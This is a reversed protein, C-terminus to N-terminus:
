TLPLLRQRPGALSPCRVKRVEREIPDFIAYEGVDRHLGGDVCMTIAEAFLQFAKSLTGLGMCYIAQCRSLPSVDARAAKRPAPCPPSRVALFNAQMSYLTPRDASPLDQMKKFLELYSKGASSPDGPVARVRPDDVDARSPPTPAADVEHNARCPSRAASPSARRSSLTCIAVIFRAFGPEGWRKPNAYDALFSPM